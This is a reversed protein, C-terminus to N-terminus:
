LYNTFLSPCKAPSSSMQPNKESKMYNGFAAYLTVGARLLGVIFFIRKIKKKKKEGEKNIDCSVQV